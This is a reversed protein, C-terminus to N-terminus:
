DDEGDANVAGDDEPTEETQAETEEEEEPETVPETEPETDEETKPETKSETTTEAKSFEAKISVDETAKFSYLTDGSVMKGSIYWGDFDYGDDPHAIITVQSDKEYTGDGETDGGRSESLTVKVTSNEKETTTEETTQETTEKETTEKETAEETAEESEAEQSVSISASPEEARRNKSKVIATVTGAVLAVLIVSLIVIIIVSRKDNKNEAPEKEPQTNDYYDNPLPAANLQQTNGTEEIPENEDYLPSGCNQCIYLNDSNEFGCNKCRM